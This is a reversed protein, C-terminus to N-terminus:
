KLEVFNDVPVGTEPKVSVGDSGNVSKNGNGETKFEFAHINGRSYSATVLFARTTAGSGVSLVGFRNSGRTPIALKLPDNYARTHNAQLRSLENGPSARGSETRVWVPVCDNGRKVVRMRYIRHNETTDIDSVGKRRSYVRFSLSDQSLLREKHRKGTLATQTAFADIEARAKQFGQFAIVDQTSDDAVLVADALLTADTPSGGALCGSQDLGIASTYSARFAVTKNIESDAAEKVNGSRVDANYVLPRFGVADAVKKGALVKDFQVVAMSVFRLDTNAKRVTKWEGKLYEFVPPLKPELGTAGQPFAVFLSEGRSFAPATYGFSYGDPVGDPLDDPLTMLTKVGASTIKLVVVRSDIAGPNEVYTLFYEGAKAEKPTFFQLQSALGRPTAHEFSLDSLAGAKTASFFKLRTTGENFAAAFLMGDASGVLDAGLRPVSTAEKKTLVTGKDDLEFRLLSGNRFESSFSSNLVFINRTGEQGAVAFPGSIADGLEPEEVFGCSSVLLGAIFMVSLFLKPQSNM